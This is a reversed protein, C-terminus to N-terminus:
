FRHNFFNFYKSISQAMKFVKKGSPVVFPSVYISKKVLIIGTRRIFPFTVTGTVPM